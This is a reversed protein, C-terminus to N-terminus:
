KRETNSRNRLEINKKCRKDFAQDILIKSAMSSLTQKGEFDYITLEGGYTTHDVSNFGTRYFTATM